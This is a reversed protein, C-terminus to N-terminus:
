AGTREQHAAEDEVFSPDYVEDIDPAQVEPYEVALSAIIKAMGAKSPRPISQFRQSYFRHIAAAEEDDVFGLHSRLVASVRRPEQKFTRITAIYSAAVRAILAADTDRLRKTTSLVPAQYQLSQGLDVLESFGHKREGVIKYDATLVGAGVEGAVLADYIEPYTDLAVLRVQGRMGWREIMRAASFGTQGSESLVGITGGSLGEPSTVGKRGLIYLASVPEPALIILPDGGQFAARVLPVPGYEGFQYEGALLGRVGDPGATETRVIRLDLEHERFVGLERGIIGLAQATSRLGLGLTVKRM